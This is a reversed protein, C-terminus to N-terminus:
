SFDLGSRHLLAIFRENRRLLDVRPDVKLLLVWPDKDLAAQDLREIAENEDIHVYPLARHYPSVYRRKSEEDLEELLKIADNKSGWIVHWYALLLKYLINGEAM